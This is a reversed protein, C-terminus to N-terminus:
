MVSSEWYVLVPSVPHLALATDGVQTQWQAFAQRASDTTRGTFYATHYSGTVTMYRVSYRNM